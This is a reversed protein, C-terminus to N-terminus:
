GYTEEPQWLSGKESIESDLGFPVQLGMNHPMFKKQEENFAEKFHAKPPESVPPKRIRGSKDFQPLRGPM